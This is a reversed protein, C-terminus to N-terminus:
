TALTDGLRADTVSWTGVNSLAEGYSVDLQGGEVFRGILMAMARNRDKGLEV